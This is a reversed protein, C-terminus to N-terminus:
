FTTKGICVVATFSFVGSIREQSGGPAGHEGHQEGQWGGVDQVVEEM